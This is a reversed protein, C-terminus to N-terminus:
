PQVGFITLREMLERLATREALFADHDELAAM